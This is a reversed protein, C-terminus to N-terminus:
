ARRRTGVAVVLWSVALVAFGLVATVMSEALGALLRQTLAPSWGAGADASAARLALALAAATASLVAMTLCVSLSRFLALKREGSEIAFSVAAALTWAGAVILFAGFSWGIVM